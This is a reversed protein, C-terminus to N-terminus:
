GFVRRRRVGRRRGPRHCRPIGAPAEGTSGCASATASPWSSPPWCARSSRGSACRPLGPPPTPWNAALPRPTTPSPPRPPRCSNPSRPSVDADAIDAGPLDSGPADTGPAAAPADAGLSATVAADWNGGDDLDRLRKHAAMYRDYADSLDCNESTRCVVSGGPSSRRHDLASRVIVSSRQWNTENAQGNGRNILTLAEQSRADFAAARAQSLVDANALSTSVADDARNMARTQAAGGGIVVALLVVAAIAMPVNVLRRFRLALWVAGALVLVITAIGAALLWAGARHAAAIGADVADRQGQEVVRLAPVIRDTVVANAQRQYATGVPFGQRNNARAQEVLGTYDTLATSAAALADAQDGGIDLHLGAQVIMSSARAIDDLYQQRQDAREQGGVLFSRSAVSDAEVVAVRIDQLALLQTAASGADAISAARRNIGYNAAVGFALTAIVTVVMAVRLRSPTGGRTSYSARLRALLQQGLREAVARGSSAGGARSQTHAM